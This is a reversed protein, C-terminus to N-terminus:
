RDPYSTRPVGPAADAASIPLRPRLMVVPVIVCAATLGAAVLFALRYGAVLASSVDQGQAVLGTTRSASITALVAIGLSSGLQPAVNTIGSALGTESAPVDSMAISVSPMFVLANGVAILIMPPLIGALFGTHVSIRAMGLLGATVILLGVIVLTRLRVRHVLWPIFALSIFGIIVSLPLFALGTRLPSYGLVHAMYLAGLFIFGPGGLTYVSRIITAAVLNRHRFIRLPILPTRARAEVVVFVCALLLSGALSAITEGSGWSSVGANIVGYVLLMPAGTVLLAGLIDAGARIGLGADTALLRRVVLLAALGIPVNVFFIWHWSLAETVIGGLVLGLAGGLVAVFAYISLAMTRARPEPFMPSIIGLVMASVMAASAGQVFRAGVLVDATPALGCLLSSVVFAGLGVLFVQKRGVLDGLRGALMLLGGFTLLYANVVWALSSQSFHLEHQIIPLAVYVITSDLVIM